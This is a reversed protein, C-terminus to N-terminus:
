PAATVGIRVNTMSEIRVPKVITFRENSNGSKIIIRGGSTVQGVAVELSNYPNDFTGLMTGTYGRLNFDGEQM